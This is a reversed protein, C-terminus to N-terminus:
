ALNSAKERTFRTSQSDQPESTETIKTVNVGGLTTDAKHVRGSGLTRSNMVIIAGSDRTKLDATTVVRRQYGLKTNRFVHCAMVNAVMLNPVTFMTSYTEAISTNYFMILALLNSTVTILYYLQGDQLVARSFQPLYQGTVFARLNAKFGRDVYSNQFLRWSIALFILTDHLTTTVGTGGVYKTASVTLCFDTPGLNGGKVAIPVLIATGLVSLWACFLFCVFYTNRNFIARARLFFLLSTMPVAAAYMSGVIELAFYCRKLPYTEFLTGGFIYGFTFIKSLFYAATGISFKTTTVLKYDDVVNSLLTWVFAGMTGVLVYEATQIAHAVDPPLFAAPTFPNPVLSCNLATAM